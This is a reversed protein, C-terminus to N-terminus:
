GIRAMAKKKAIVGKIASQKVKPDKLDLGFEEAYETLEDSSVGSAGKGGSNDTENIKEKIITKGDDDAGLGLETLKQIGIKSVIAEVEKKDDWLEPKVDKMIAEKIEKEYKSLFSKYSKDEKLDDLVDKMGDLQIRKEVKSLRGFRKAIIGDNAEVHWAIAEIMSDRVAELVDNMFESDVKKGDAVEETWKKVLRKMKPPLELRGVASAIVDAKKESTKAKLIEAKLSEIEAKVSRLEDAKRKNEERITKFGGHKELWTAEDDSDDDEGKGADDDAFTFMPKGSLRDSLMEVYRRFM